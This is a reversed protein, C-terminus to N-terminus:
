NVIDIESDHHSTIDGDNWAILYTTRWTENKEELIIGIRDYQAKWTTGEVHELNWDRATRGISSNPKLDILQTNLTTQM